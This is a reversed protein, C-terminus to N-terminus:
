VGVVKYYYTDGSTYIKDFSDRGSDLAVIFDVHAFSSFAELPGDIEDAKNQVPIVIPIMRKKRFTYEPM